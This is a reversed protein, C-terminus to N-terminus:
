ILLTLNGVQKRNIELTKGVIKVDSTDYPQGEETNILNFALIPCTTSNHIFEEEFNLVMKGSNILYRLSIGTPTKLTTAEYGCVEVLFPDSYHTIQGITSIVYRM